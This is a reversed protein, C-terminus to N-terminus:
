CKGIVVRVKPKKCDCVRTNCTGLIVLCQGSIIKYSRSSKSCIVSMQKNKVFRVRDSVPGKYKVKKCKPVIADDFFGMSEVQIYADTCNKVYYTIDKAYTNTAVISLMVIIILKLSSM